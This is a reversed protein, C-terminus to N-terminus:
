KLHSIDINYMECERELEQSYMIIADIKKQMSTMEDKLYDKILGKPEDCELCERVYEIIRDQEIVVRSM